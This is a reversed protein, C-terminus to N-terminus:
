IALARTTTNAQTSLRIWAKTTQCLLAEFGNRRGTCSKTSKCRYTPIMVSLSFPTSPTVSLKSNTVTELSTASLFYHRVLGRLWPAPNVLPHEQVLNEIANSSSSPAISQLALSSLEQQRKFIVHQGDICARMCGYALLWAILVLTEFVEVVGCLSPIKETRSSGLLTHCDEARRRGPGRPGPQGVSKQGGQSGFVVM